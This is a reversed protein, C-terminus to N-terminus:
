NQVHLDDTALLLKKVKESNLLSEGESAEPLPDDYPGSHWVDVEQRSHVIYVKLLMMHVNGLFTGTIGRLGM